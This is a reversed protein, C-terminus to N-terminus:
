SADKWTVMSRYTVWSIVLVIGYILVTIWFTPRNVWERLWETLLNAPNIQVGMWINLTTFLINWLLSWWIYTKRSIRIMGRWYNVVDDPLPSMRSLIVATLPRRLLLFAFKGFWAEKKLELWAPWILRGNQFAICASVMEWCLAIALWPWWWWFVWALVSLRGVPILTFPRAGYLVMYLLISAPNQLIWNVLMFIGKHVSGYYTIVISYWMLLLILRWLIIFLKKKSFFPTKTPLNQHITM